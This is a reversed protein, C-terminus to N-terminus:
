CRSVRPHSALPQELCLERLDKAQRERFIRIQFVRILQSKPVILFDYSPPSNFSINATAFSPISGGSIMHSCIFLAYLSQMTRHNQQIFLPIPSFHTEVSLQAQCPKPSNEHAPGSHPRYSTFSLGAYM